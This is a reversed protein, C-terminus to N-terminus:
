VGSLDALAKELESIRQDRSEIATRVASLEVMQPIHQPCNLDWAQVTILIVQEIRAKYGEPMLRAVLEQDGKVVRARGWIKVRQRLEYDVIILHVKDNESLNGTTIFQRNGSYDVFGVTEKDLVRLFGPPGGRHQIYPQGEATASAIFVTSTHEIFQRLGASIGSEWDNVGARHQYGRRSGRAEQIAKVAATFAIDSVPQRFGGGSM